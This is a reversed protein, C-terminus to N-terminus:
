RVVILLGKKCLRLVANSEDYAVSYGRVRGDVLVTWDALGALGTCDAFTCPIAIEKPLDTGPADTLSLTGKAALQAGKLSMGGALSLTLGDLAFGAADAASVDLTTGAAM